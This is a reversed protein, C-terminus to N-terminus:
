FLLPKFILNRVEEQFGLFGRKQRPSDSAPFVATNQFTLYSIIIFYKRFNQFPSIAPTRAFFDGRKQGFFRGCFHGGIKSGVESSSQYDCGFFFTKKPFHCRKVFINSFVLFIWTDSRFITRSFVLGIKSEELWGGDRLGAAWVMVIRWEQLGDLGYLIVRGLRVFTCDM